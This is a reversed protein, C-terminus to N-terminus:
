LMSGKQLINLASEGTVVLKETVTLYDTGIKFLHCVCNNRVNDGLVDWMCRIEVDYIRITMLYSISQDESWSLHSMLRMDGPM